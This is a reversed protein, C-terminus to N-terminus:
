KQPSKQDIRKFFGERELEDIISEDVFRSMEFDAKPRGTQQQFIDLVAQMGKRGVRPPFSYVDHSEKYNEEAIQRNLRLHKMLSSVTRERDTRVKVIAESIAQLFKKVGDREKALYSRRVMILRDPFEPVLETMEALINMGKKVAMVSEAYSLLTGDIGGAELALLRERGGGAILLSISEGPIKWERLAMLAGFESSGGFNAIGIRRNRLEAPKRIERRAVFKQLSKNLIGGVIVIDGGSLVASVPAMAAMNASHTSGGFLAQLSRAGGTIVVLDVNLGYKEFIGLDKAVYMPLQNSGVGASSHFHRQQASLNSSFAALFALTLIPLVRSMAAKYAIARCATLSVAFSKKPKSGAPV